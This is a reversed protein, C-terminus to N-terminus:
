LFMTRMEMIIKKTTDIYERKVKSGIDKELIPEMSDPTNWMSDRWYKEIFNIIIYPNDLSDWSVESSPILVLLRAHEAGKLELWVPRYHGQRLVSMPTQKRIDIVGWVGGKSYACYDIEQPTAIDIGLDTVPLENSM